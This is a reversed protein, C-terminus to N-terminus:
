RPRMGMAVWGAPYGRRLAEMTQEHKSKGKQVRRVGMYASMPHQISKALVASAAGVLAIKEMEDAFAEWIM